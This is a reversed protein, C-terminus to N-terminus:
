GEDYESVRARAAYPEIVAWARESVVLRQPTQTMFFDDQGKVGVIQVWVFPPLQRNPYLERFEESRDIEVDALMFGTLRAARLRDALARTAIHCTVATLIQDGLWVEFMYHLKHITWRRRDPDIVSRPGLCGGVEAELYMYKM